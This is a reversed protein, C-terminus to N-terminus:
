RRSAAPSQPWRRRAWRVIPYLVRITPRMIATTVPHRRKVHLGSLKTRWEDAVKEKDRHEPKATTHIHHGVEHYLVWGISTARVFTLSLLWAPVQALTEDVFVEIWAPEGNWAPYYRGLLVTDRTKGFRRKHQRKRTGTLASANTLVVSRLGALLDPRVSELLDEVSAKADFTPSYGVYNEIVAVMEASRVSAIPCPRSPTSCLIPVSSTWSSRGNLGEGSLETNLTSRPADATLSVVVGERITDRDKDGWIPSRARLAGKTEWILMGRLCQEPDARKAGADATARLTLYDPHPLNSLDGLRGVVPQLLCPGRPTGKAFPSPATTSPPGQLQVRTNYPALSPGSAAEQRWGGLDRICWTATSTFRVLM